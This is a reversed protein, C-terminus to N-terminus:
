EEPPRRVVPGPAAWTRWVRGPRPPRINILRQGERELAARRQWQLRSRQRRSLMPAVGEPRRPSPSPVPTARGKRRRKKRNGGTANPDRDNM